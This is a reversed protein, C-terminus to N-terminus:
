AHRPLVCRGESLRTLSVLFTHLFVISTNSYAGCAVDGPTGCAYPPLTQQSANWFAVYYAQSTSNSTAGFIQDQNVHLSPCPPDDSAVVRHLGEGQDAHRARGHAPRQWGDMTRQPLAGDCGAWSSSRTRESVDPMSAGPVGLRKSCRRQQRHRRELQAGAALSAAAEAHRAHSVATTTAAATIPTTAATRLTRKGLSRPDGGAAALM